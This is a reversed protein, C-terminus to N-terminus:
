LGKAYRLFFYLFPAAFVMSDVIDLMGGLGPLQNSDKVGADRKLLSEALDGIQALLAIGLGLFLSEGFSLTFSKSSLLHSGYYFLLSAGISFAIGGIAGEVTKKPSIYSALPRSGCLKGVFFGGTDSMKAVVLLYFLWWRGDQTSDALHFYNIRLLYSLPLTLYVIGFITLSLNVLPSGGKIFYHLFFALFSSYLVLAGLAEAYPFQSSMGIIFLYLFNAAVAPWLLPQFSGHLGAQLSKVSENQNKGAEIAIQYFEWLAISIGASFFLNFGLFFLTHHSYTIAFAMLVSLVLSVFLRQYFSNMQQLIM